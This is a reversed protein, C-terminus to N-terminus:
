PGMCVNDFMDIRSSKEYLPGALICSTQKFSRWHDQIAALTWWTGLLGSKAAVMWTSRSCIKCNKSHTQQTMRWNSRNIPINKKPLFPKFCGRTKDTYIVIKLLNWYSAVKVELCLAACRANRNWSLPCISLRYSTPTELGHLLRDTFQLALSPASTHKLFKSQKTNRPNISAGIAQLSEPVINQKSAQEM